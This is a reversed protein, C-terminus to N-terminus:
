ECELCKARYVVPTEGPDSEVWVTHLDNYSKTEQAHAEAIDSAEIEIDTVRLTVATM